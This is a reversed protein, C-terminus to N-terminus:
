RQPTVWTYVSGDHLTTERIRFGVHKLSRELREPSILGYFSYGRLSDILFGDLWPKANDMTSMRSFDSNRYQVTFLCEGRNTLKDRITRIVDHRIKYSPIVSLVNICFGREYKRRDIAFEVDNYVSIQNSHTFNHRISGKQGRLVQLRSLQIESDVLALMDTTEGIKNQYRLKGCGYDFTSAVRPLQHILCLLFKSQQTESKAANETKIVIGSALKYRM